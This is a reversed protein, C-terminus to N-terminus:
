VLFGVYLEAIQEMISNVREEYWEGLKLEGSVDTEATFYTRLGNECIVNALETGKDTIFPECIKLWLHIDLIMQQVGGFGFRRPAHARTWCKEDLMYEFLKTNMESLLQKKDLSANGLDYGIQNLELLLKMIDESPLCDDM